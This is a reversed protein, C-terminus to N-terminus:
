EKDGKFYYRAYNAEQNFRDKGTERVSVIDMLPYRKKRLRYIVSALRSIGYLASAENQTISGYRELHNRVKGEDPITALVAKEEDSLEDFKKPARCSARYEVKNDVM